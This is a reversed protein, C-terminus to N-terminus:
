LHEEKMAKVSVGRKALEVTFTSRTAPMKRAYITVSFRLLRKPQKGIAMKPRISGIISNLHQYILGPIERSFIHTGPNVSSIDIFQTISVSECSKNSLITVTAMANEAIATSRNELVLPIDWTGDPQQKALRTDVSCHLDPIETASFLRRIIEYPAPHFDDGSRWYFVHDTNTQIPASPHHPIYTVLIGRTDTHKQTLARTESNLIPPSTLTPITRQIQHLLSKCNGIPEIQTLVDLSSHAHRTTSVGWIIIGGATNGFGSIARALYERQDKSLKPESPAKAELHLGEAETSTILEEVRTWSDLQQYRIWGADSKM